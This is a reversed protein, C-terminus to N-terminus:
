DSPPYLSGSSVISGYVNFATWELPSYINGLLLLVIVSEKESLPKDVAKLIVISSSAKERDWGNAKVSIISGETSKIELGYVPIEGNNRILLLTTKQKIKMVVSVLGDNSTQDTPEEITLEFVSQVTQGSYTAEITYIGELGQDGQVNFEFYYTGDSYPMVRGMTYMSNGMNFVRITVQTNERVDLVTGTVHINEGVRYNEKDTRVTLMLKNPEDYSCDDDFDNSSNLINSDKDFVSIQVNDEAANGVDDQVVFTALCTGAGLYRHIFELSRQSSAYSIEGNEVQDDGYKMAWKYSPQGGMIKATFKVELPVDGSKVDATLTVGLSPQETVILTFAEQPLNSGGVAKVEVFYAGTKAYTPIKIILTSTFTPVGYSPSFEFATGSPGGSAQMHVSTIDGALYQVYADVTGQGGRPITVSTSKLMLRIEMPKAADANYFNFASTVAHFMVAYLLIMSVVLSKANSM